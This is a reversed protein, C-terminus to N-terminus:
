KKFNLTQSDAVMLPVPNVIRLNKTIVTVTQGGETFTYMIDNEKFIVIDKDSVKHKTGKKIEEIDQTLKKTFFVNRDGSKEDYIAVVSVDQVADAGPNATSYGHMIGAAELNEYFAINQADKTKREWEKRKDHIKIPYELPYEVSM